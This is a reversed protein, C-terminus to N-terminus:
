ARQRPRHHANSPLHGGCRARRPARQARRPSARAGQSGASREIRARHAARHDWPVRATQEILAELRGAAEADVTESGIRVWYKWSRGDGPGDPARHPSDESAPAWVVLVDRGDLVEPSLIPSYGPRMAKCRGRIWRQAEDIGAGSLGAVPRVARGESEAVGIVVYGGNLSQLDNAFACVTKLVQFGTTDPNWGAKFEVRASEIPRGRLLDDVNIPLIPRM